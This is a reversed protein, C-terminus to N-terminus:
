GTDSSRVPAHHRELVSADAPRAYELFLSELRVAIRACDLEFVTARAQQRLRELLAPQDALSVAQHIFATEDNPAALLGNENHRLHEHAAAYDYAVIGLGSALAEIVVNGFTESLSPFLFLDGSAYHRALDEATRLGAFILDPNAQKLPQELPGSGVLVFRLEPIRTQMARYARIALEINKEPALRGVYLVVPTTKSAGWTARLDADRRAPDFLHIDVSRSIVRAKHFGQRALLEALERTPVFTADARNHFRRLHARIAPEFWGLRYHRSYYDFRTHFGTVAPLGMRKATHLASNGLPGETGIFVLDPAFQTWTQRLLRGAPMGFHLGPYSLLPVSPVLREYFRPNRSPRPAGDDAAQRPRILQVRHGRELLAEVWHHLTNAVGNIEPPWTESVMAINLTRPQQTPM